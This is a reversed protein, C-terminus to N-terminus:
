KMELVLKRMISIDTLSINNDFNVDTALKQIESLDIMKLIYKRELSIDSLSLKGDQNLDGLVILTFIKGEDDELVNGTAINDEETLEKDVNKIVYEKLLTFAEKFEKVTTEPYINMINNDKIQYGNEDNLFIYFVVKTVNGAKDTAMLEYQGEETLENGLSYGEIAQGNLTLQVEKLHDDSVQPKVSNFYIKGDEIDSIQPADKDITISINKEEMQGEDNSYKIQILYNGNDSLIVETDGVESSNIIIQTQIGEIEDYKITVDKNTITDNNINEKDSNLIQVEKKYSLPISYNIGLEELNKYFEQYFLKINRGSAIEYNKIYIKEPLNYINTLDGNSIGTYYQSNYFMYLNNDNYTSNRDDIKLGDIFINPLYLDYGFDHLINTDDYSVRFYVLQQANKPKYTCNTIYINGDWTSGYDQRLEILYNNSLITSNFINLNGSGIVTIGKIGITCNNITLNHVGTHSDIRNLTCDEYTVDKAYHTGGIGWRNEDEIDNSTVETIKIDIVYELFLDYNSKEEYKHSYLECHKITVDTVGYLNIFGKYPGGIYNKDNVTHNINQIITNSRRCYINRLFYGTDQEYKEEPLITVFNGNEVTITEEPIPIIIIESVNDFDWQIENLVNGENDIKFFDRQTKGNDQNKGYRIYQMKNENYVICMANGYGSLESIKETAKNIKINNLIKKDTITIESQKSEIKFIASNRTDLDNIDEDHIIFTANNWDTNTQILVSNTQNLKYIHYTDLTAKVNYGYYNAYIHADYIAQYNDFGEESSTGFSEYTIYKNGQEDTYVPIDKHSEVIEQIGKSNEALPTFSNNNFESVEDITDYWNEKMEKLENPNNNETKNINNSFYIYALILVLLLSNLVVFKKLTKLMKIKNLRRINKM